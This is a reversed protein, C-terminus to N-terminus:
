AGQADGVDVSHDKAVLRMRGGEAPVESLSVLKVFEEFDTDFIMLTLRASSPVNFRRSLAVKLDALNVIGDFSVMCSQQSDRDVVDLNFSRGGPANQSALRKQQDRQKSLRPAAIPGNLSPHM